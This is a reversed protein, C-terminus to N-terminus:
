RILPWFWWIAKGLGYVIVILSLAIVAWIVPEINDMTMPAEDHEM